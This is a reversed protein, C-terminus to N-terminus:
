RKYLNMFGDRVEELNDNLIGERINETLRTLFRMDHATALVPVLMDGTRFLQHIYARTFQKCVFCDCQSDIPSFDDKFEANRIIILGEHTYVSATRGRRTPVVCDFTDIGASAGAFLDEPEGIGLLHRTKNEPLEGNVLDLIGLIDEKTFSGGIGYGDFDMGSLYKASEIRLDEFRGGQVIGYLGQSANHTPNQRHAALSRRAWEHTRNM